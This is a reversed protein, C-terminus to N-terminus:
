YLFACLVVCVSPFSHICLIFIIFPPTGWCLAFVSLSKWIFLKRKGYCIAHFMCFRETCRHLFFVFQVIEKGCSSIFFIGSCKAQKSRNANSCSPPLGFEKGFSSIIFRGFCKAQKSRNANSCSPPLVIIEFSCVILWVNLYLNTDVEWHSWPLLM